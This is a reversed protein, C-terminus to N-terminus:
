CFLFKRLTAFHFFVFYLPFTNPFEGLTVWQQYLSSFYDWRKQLVSDTRTSFGGSYVCDCTDGRAQREESLRLVECRALVRPEKNEGTKTVVMTLVQFEEM